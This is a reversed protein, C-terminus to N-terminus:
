EVIAEAGELAVDNAIEEAIEMASRKGATRLLIKDVILYNIVLSGLVGFLFGFAITERADFPHFPNSQVTTAQTYYFVAFIAAALVVHGLWTWIRWSLPVKVTGVTKQGRDFLPRTSRVVAEKGTGTARKM